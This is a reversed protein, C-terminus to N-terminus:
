RTPLKHEILKLDILKGNDMLASYEIWGDTGISDYFVLNGRMLEPEWRVNTRDDGLGTGDYCERWLTGDERLEYLDCFQAQTDKTQYDGHQTVPLPYKVRLNDYM